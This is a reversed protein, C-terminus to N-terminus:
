IVGDIPWENLLMCCAATYDSVKCWQKRGESATQQRVLACEYVPIIFSITCIAPATAMQVGQIGLTLGLGQRLAYGFRWGPRGPLGACAAGVGNSVAM